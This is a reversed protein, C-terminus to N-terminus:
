GQHIADYIYTNQGAWQESTTHRCLRVKLVLHLLPKEVVQWLDVGEGTGDLYACLNVFTSMSHGDLYACLNVFTSM